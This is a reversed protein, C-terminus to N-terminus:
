FDKGIKSCTECTTQSPQSQAPVPSRATAKTKGMVFDAVQDAHDQLLGTATFMATPNKSEVFLSGLQQGDPSVITVTSQVRDQGAMVGVMARVAGHRMRYYDIRVNLQKAAPDQNVLMTGLRARLRGEFVQRGEPTMGGYNDLNYIFRDGTAASYPMRVNSKTGACAALLLVAILCLKKTVFDMRMMM